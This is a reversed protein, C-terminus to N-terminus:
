ILESLTAPDYARLADVEGRAVRAAWDPNAIMARGVGVLDFDGREFLSMLRAINERSVTAIDKVRGGRSQLPLELSVCGVTMAAKGTLRRAWGALNWPGDDAFEAEWFRRTSADFLDVGADALPELYGALEAPTEALRAHYEPGKWQSFRFMIPFDPGVRARIARVVEAALRTRNAVDGGYRDSRPNSRTWFFQDLLYGHGGHINVGDCGARRALEAGAAYAEIVEAFDSDTMARAPGEGEPFFDSPGISPELPNICTQPKRGLGAHWLQMFFASGAGHVADAVQAWAQVAPEGALLPTAGMYQAVPHPPAVGETVILGAGGEARRRYYDSVGPVPLGDRSFHRTMPSMAIRNRLTLPGITLPTFLPAVAQALAPDPAQAM